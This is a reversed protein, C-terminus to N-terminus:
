LSLRSRLIDTQILLLNLSVIVNACTIVDNISVPTTNTTKTRKPTIMMVGDSMKTKNMKGTPTIMTVDDSM